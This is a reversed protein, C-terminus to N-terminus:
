DLVATELSRLALFIGASWTAAMPCIEHGPRFCNSCLLWLGSARVSGLPSNGM